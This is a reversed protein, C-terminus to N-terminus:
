AWSPAPPEERSLSGEAVRHSACDGIELLDPPLDARRPDQHQPVGVAAIEGGRVQAGVGVLHRAHDEGGGAVQLVPEAACRQLAPQAQLLSQGGVPQERRGARQEGVAQGLDVGCRRV